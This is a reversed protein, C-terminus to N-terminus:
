YQFSKNSNKLMEFDFDYSSEFAVVTCFVAKEIKM